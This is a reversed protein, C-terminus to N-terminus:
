SYYTLGNDPDFTDLFLELGIYTRRYIKFTDKIQIVDTTVDGSNILSPYAGINSDLKNIASVCDTESVILNEPDGIDTAIKNTKEVWTEFKEM